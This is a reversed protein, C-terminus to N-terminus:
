PNAETPLSQQSLLVIAANDDDETNLELRLMGKWVGDRKHSFLGYWYRANEVISEPTYMADVVYHDVHYDSKIKDHDMFDPFSYLFNTAFDPDHNWYFTVIDIDKPARNEGTEINETFSGDLWQFGNVMGSKRLEARFNMLGQLIAVREPSSGFRECLEYSTCPYPSLESPLTPSGLHPPLVLNQDFSPIPM